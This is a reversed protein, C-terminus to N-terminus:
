QCGPDSRPATSSPSAPRRSRAVSELLLRVGEPSNRTGIVLLVIPDSLIDDIAPEVNKMWKMSAM